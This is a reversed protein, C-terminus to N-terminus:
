IKVGGTADVYLIRGCSKCPFLDKNQCVLNLDQNTLGMHCGSCNGDRVAALVTGDKKFRLINRYMAMPKEPVGKAADDRQAKKDAILKDQDAIEKAAADRQGQLRQAAGDTLKKLAAIEKTLEEAKTMLGLIEDEVKRKDAEVGSIEQRLAAYEKNTKVANLQGQYKGIKDECEKVLKERKDTELRLSKQEKGAAEFRAQAAQVEKEASALRGPIVSRVKELRVIEQELSQVILLAEVHPNM